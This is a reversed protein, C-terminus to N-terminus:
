NCAVLGLKMLLDYRFGFFMIPRGIHLRPLSAPIVEKCGKKSLAICRIECFM